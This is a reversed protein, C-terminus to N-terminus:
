TRCPQGGVGMGGGAALQKKAAEEHRSSRMVECSQHRCCAFSGDTLFLCQALLM